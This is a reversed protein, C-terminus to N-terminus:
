HNLFFSKNEAKPLPCNDIYVAQDRDSGCFYFGGTKFTNLDQPADVSAGVTNFVPVRSNSLRSDNGQCFTNAATGFSGAQLKGINGTIVPLNPTSGITGDKTINGHGHEKKSYFDSLKLQKTAM